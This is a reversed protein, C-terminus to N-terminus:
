VGLATFILCFLELLMYLHEGRGGRPNDMFVAGHETVELRGDEVRSAIADDVASM